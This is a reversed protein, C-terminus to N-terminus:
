DDGPGKTNNREDNRRGLAADWVDRFAQILPIWARVFATAAKPIEAGVLLLAVISGIIVLAFTMHISRTSSVVHM